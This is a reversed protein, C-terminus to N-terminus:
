SKQNGKTWAQLPCSLAACTAGYGRFGTNSPVSKNFHVQPRSAFLAATMKGLGIGPGSKVWGGATSALTCLLCFRDFALIVAAAWRLSQFPCVRDWLLKWGSLGGKFPTLERWASDDRDEVDVVIVKDVGAVHTCPGHRNM